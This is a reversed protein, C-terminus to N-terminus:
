TLEKIVQSTKMLDLVAANFDVDSVKEIQNVRETKSRTNRTCSVEAVETVKPKTDRPDPEIEVKSRTNRAM